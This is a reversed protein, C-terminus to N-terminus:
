WTERKVKEIMTEVQSRFPEYLWGDDLRAKAGDVAKRLMERDRLQWCRDIHAELDTVYEVRTQQEYAARQLEAVHAAGSVVHRLHGELKGNRYTVGAQEALWHLRHYIADRIVDHTSRYAEFQGCAVIAGLAPMVDPRLNIRIREAHGKNDSAPTYFEDLSYGDEPTFPDPDSVPHLHGKSRSL